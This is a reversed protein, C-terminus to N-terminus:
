ANQRPIRGSDLALQARHLQDRILADTQGLRAQIWANEAQQLALGSEAGALYGKRTMHYVSRATQVIEGAAKLAITAAQVSAFEQTLRSRIQMQLATKAAQMAAVQEQAAAIQDRNRGFGFIPIQLSLGAQWGLQNSRPLTASDVGYAAQATVTPLRAAQRFHWHARAAQIQSDAIQLLPQTHMAQKQIYQLDPLPVSPVHVQALAPLDRGMGTQLALVQQVAARQARAQDLVMRTHLVELRAENLDLRSRTGNQYGEQTARYVQKARIHARNWVAIVQKDLALRYYSMSVQAAVLLRAQHLQYQAIQTQNKAIKSLARIQPAYLPVRLHIQGMLERAGNASVYLPQGARTQTWIAASNLSLSPLLRAEAGRSRDQQATLLHQAEQISAQSHLASTIAQQLTLDAASASVPILSISCALLTNVPNFRRMVKSFILLM